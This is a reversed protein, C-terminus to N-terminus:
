ARAKGKGKGKGPAAQRAPKGSGKGKIAKPLKRTPKPVYQKVDPTRSSKSTSSTAKGKGDKAGKSASQSYSTLKNNAFVPM